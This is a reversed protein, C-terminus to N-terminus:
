YGRPEKHRTTTLAGFQELPIFGAAAPQEGVGEVELAAMDPATELLAAEIALKLTITASAWGHGSGQLRLRVVGNAMSLLEVQGGHARVTPRVKDLAQRVRTELDVPHLGYLLLLSTVAEDHVFREMIASGTEGAQSVLMMMRELGTGHWELLAQVLQQVSARVQADAITELRQILGAIHQV